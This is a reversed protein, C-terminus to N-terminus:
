RSVIVSALMVPTLPTPSPPAIPAGPATNFATVSASEGNPMSIKSIGIAGWRMRCSRRSLRLRGCHRVLHVDAEGDIAVRARDPNLRPPGQRVRQALITARGAGMEAALM